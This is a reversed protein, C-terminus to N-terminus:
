WLHREQYLQQFQRWSDTTCCLSGWTSPGRVM